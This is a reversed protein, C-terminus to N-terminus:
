RAPGTAAEAAPTATAPRLGRSEGRRYKFKLIPRELVYYSAAACAVTIAFSIATVKLTGHGGGPRGEEQWVKTLIPLQWLFIGYSVLGLWAVVRNGLILRPLGGRADGFVAPLVIFFAVLGYLVHRAYLAANTRSGLNTATLGAHTSVIWYLVAAAVWALMPTDEIARVIGPRQKSGALWASAVALAMGPVFWTIMAPLAQQLYSGPTFARFALGFVALAALLGIESHLKARRTPAYVGRALFIAVFPLLVYFSAEVALSWAPVIGGLPWIQHYIQVFGYYAWWHSSWMQPLGPYIALVTLALWYAPIIRLVRRRAYDRIAPARGGNLRAAVFPRYLLFGSIVFFIAVGVDLRATYAGFWATQSEGTLFFAHSIFVSIAAIARLGDFLPFRPNGPPPRFVPDTSV